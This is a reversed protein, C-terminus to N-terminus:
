LKIEAKFYVITLVITIWSLHSKIKPLTFYVTFGSIGIKWQVM